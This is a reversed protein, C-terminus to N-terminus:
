LPNAEIILTELNTLGAPLTVEVLRNSELNLTFLHHAAGLGELSRISRCCADLDELELLDEAQLPGSPIQLAARVAANLGPDPISVEQARSSLPSGAVVLAVFLHLLTRM